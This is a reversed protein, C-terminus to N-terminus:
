PTVKYWPTPLEVFWGLTFPCISKTGGPMPEYPDTDFFPLDYPIDLAQLWEPTTDNICEPVWGRGTREYSPKHAQRKDRSNSARISSSATMGSAM